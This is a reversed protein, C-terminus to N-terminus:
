KEKKLEARQEEVDKIEERLNELYQELAKIRNKKSRMFGRHHFPTCCMYPHMGIPRAIHLRIPECCMATVGKM